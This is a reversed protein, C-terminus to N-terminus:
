QIIEPMICLTFMLIFMFVYNYDYKDLRNLERTCKIPM